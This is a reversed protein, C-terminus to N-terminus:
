SNTQLHAIHRKHTLLRDNYKTQTSTWTQTRTTHMYFPIVHYSNSHKDPIKGTMNFGKIPFHEHKSCRKHLSCGCACVATMVMTKHPTKAKKKVTKQSTKAKKKVANGKTGNIPVNRDRGRKRPMTVTFSNM